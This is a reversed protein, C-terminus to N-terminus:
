TGFKGYPNETGALLKARDPYVLFEASIEDDKLGDRSINWCNWPVCMYVTLDETLTAPPLDTPHLVMPKALSYLDVGLLPTLPVLTGAGTYWPILKKLQVLTVERIIVTIKAGDEMGVVRDGLKIDGVSNIKIPSLKLKMDPTIKDVGGFDIANWTGVWACKRTNTATWVM